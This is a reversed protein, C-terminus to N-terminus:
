VRSVACGQECRRMDDEEITKLSKQASAGTLQEEPGPRQIWLSWLVETYPLHEALQKEQHISSHLESFSWSPSM